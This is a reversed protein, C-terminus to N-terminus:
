SGRGARPERQRQDHRGPSRDDLRRHSSKELTPARFQEVLVVEGSDRNLIMAAVADGREFVLLPKDASMTGDFQRHSVTVEDLKFYGDFVRRKSRVIVRPSGNM